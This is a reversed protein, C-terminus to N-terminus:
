LALRERLRAELKQKARAELQRARERSVGLSRGLEALSAEDEDTFIRQSVIYRERTDLLLMAEQVAERLAEAEYAAQYAEDADGGAGRM